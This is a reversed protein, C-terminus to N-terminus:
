RLRLTIGVQRRVPRAPLSSALVTHARLAIQSVRPYAFEHRVARDPITTPPQRIMRAAQRAVRAGFM